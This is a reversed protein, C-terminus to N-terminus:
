LFRLEGLGPVSNSNGTVTELGHNDSDTNIFLSYICFSLGTSIEWYSTPQIKERASCCNAIIDISLFLSVM